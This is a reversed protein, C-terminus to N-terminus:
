NGTSAAENAAKIELLKPIVHACNCRANMKMVRTKHHSAATMWQAVTRGSSSGADEGNAKV